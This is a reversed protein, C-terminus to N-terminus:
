EGKSDLAAGPVDPHLLLELYATGPVPNFRYADTPTFGLSVYLRQADHMAPLTDLLLRDYGLQQAHGIIAQALARGIGRGRAEPVTYLRKLEGSQSSFRRLGVCGLCTADEVALLFAGAPAGYEEELHALEHALDQFSLDLKLSATYREILRRARRWEAPSQPQLLHITV